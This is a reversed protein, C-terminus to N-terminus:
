LAREIIGGGLTEDGRYFVASQGPAVTGVPSEFKIVVESPNEGLEVCAPIEDKQYRIKVGGSMPSHAPQIWNVEKAILGWSLLDKKEGLTVENKQADIETVYRREGLGV